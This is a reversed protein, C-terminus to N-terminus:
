GTRALLVQLRELLNQVDMPKTWVEALGHEAPDLAQAETYATLLVIRAGRAAARIAELWPLAPDWTPEYTDTVILDVTQGDLLKRAAEPNEAGMVEFGELTLLETLVVRISVDDEVVLLRAM